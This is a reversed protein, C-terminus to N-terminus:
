FNYQLKTWWGWNSTKTFVEEEDRQGEWYTDHRTHDRSFQAIISFGKTLTKKTNVSWKWSDHTYEFPTYSQAPKPTPNEYGFGQDYLSNTNPWQFYEAEISLVDLFDFCPINVGFMIPIRQSLKNYFNSSSTDVVYSTDTGSVTKMYGTINKVGLVAVESYLKLDEKGLLSTFEQPLLDKPDFSVKGVLKTGGFSYHEIGGNSNLYANGSVQPSTIKHGNVPMLRDLGVGAGIEFISGIKYNALFSLSWDYMPHVQTETTLLVDINMDKIPYVSLRLGPLTAHAYDFSTMIYCPHTGTRFMYEGLNKADANYKYSMVGAAVQVLPASADGFSYIGEADELTVLTYQRFPQSSRDPIDTIPYSNGWMKIQPNLIIHLNDNVYADIRLQGYAKHNWPRFEFDKQKHKGAVFQGEEIAVMGSVEIKKTFSNAAFIVPNNITPVSTSTTSDAAFICSTTIAVITLLSKLLINNM